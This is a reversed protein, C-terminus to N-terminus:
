RRQSDAIDGDLGTTPKVRPGDSLKIRGVAHCRFLVREVGAAVEERLSLSRVAIKVEFPTLCSCPDSGTPM